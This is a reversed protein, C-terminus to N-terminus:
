PCNVPKGAPTPDGTSLSEVRERNQDSPVMVEPPSVLECTAPKGGAGSCGALILCFAFGLAVHPM